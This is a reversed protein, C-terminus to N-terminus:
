RATARSNLFCPIQTSQLVTRLITLDWPYLIQAFYPKHIIELVIKGSPSKLSTFFCEHISLTSPLDYPFDHSEKYSTSKHLGIKLWFFDPQQLFCSCAEPVPQKDSEKKVNSTSNRFRQGDLYFVYIKFVVCYCDKVELTM